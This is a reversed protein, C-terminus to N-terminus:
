SLTMDVVIVQGFHCHRPTPPTVCIFHPRLCSGGAFFVYVASPTAHLWALWMGLAFNFYAILFEM